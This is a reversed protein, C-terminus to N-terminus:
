QTIEKKSEAKLYNELQEFRKDLVSLILFVSALNAFVIGIALLMGFHVWDKRYGWGLALLIHIFAGLWLAISLFQMVAKRSSPKVWQKAM